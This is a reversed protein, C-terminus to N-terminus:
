RPRLAPGEVAKILPKESRERIVDGLTGVVVALLRCDLVLLPGFVDIAEAGRGTHFRVGSLVGIIAL